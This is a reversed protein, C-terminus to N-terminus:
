SIYIWVHKYLIVAVLIGSDNNYDKLNFSCNENCEIEFSVLILYLLWILVIVELLRFPTILLDYSILM